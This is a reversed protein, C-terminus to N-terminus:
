CLICKYVNDGADWLMNGGCRSCKNRKVKKNESTITADTIVKHPLMTEGNAQTTIPRGMDVFKRVPHDAPLVLIFDKDEPYNQFRAAKDKPSLCRLIPDRDFWFKKDTEYWIEPPIIRKGKFDLGMVDDIGIPLPFWDPLILNEFKFGRITEYDAFVCCLWYLEFVTCSPFGLETLAKKAINRMHELSPYGQSLRFAAQGDGISDLWRDWRHLAREFALARRTVRDDPNYIM